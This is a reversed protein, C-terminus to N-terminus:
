NVLVAGVSDYAHARAQFVTETEVPLDGTPRLKWRAHASIAARVAAVYDLADSRFFFVCGPAGLEALRDLLATSVLRHKRHRRKPWPDPFLVFIHRFRIREPLAELFEGVEARIFQLNALRARQRKREARAIRDRCFDVGLCRVAPHKEAFAALFHGHGCGLELAQEHAPAVDDMLPTLTARLAQIRGTREIRHWADSGGAPGAVDGATLAEATPPFPREIM